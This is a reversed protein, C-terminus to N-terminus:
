WCELPSWPALKLSGFKGNNRNDLCSKDEGYNRGVGNFDKNAYFTIDTNPGVKWSLGTMDVDIANVCFDTWDGEFNCQEFVKACGEAVAKNRSSIRVSNIVGHTLDVQCSNMNDENIGTVISKGGFNVESFLEVKTDVGVRFGKANFNQVETIDECIEQYSEGISCTQFLYVCGEPVPITPVAPTEPIVIESFKLSNFTIPDECQSEASFIKPEGSYDEGPFFKVTTLEGLRFSSITLPAPFKPVDTCIDIWEEGLFNCDNFVKICDRSVPGNRSSLRFSRVQDNWKGQNDPLDFSCLDYNSAYTEYRQGNYGAETFIEIKTDPGLEFGSILDRIDESFEPMSENNCVEILTVSQDNCHRFFKVCGEDLALSYSFLIFLCSIKIYSNM